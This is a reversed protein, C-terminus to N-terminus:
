VLFVKTILDVTKEDLKYSDAKLGLVYSPAFLSGKSRYCIKGFPPYEPDTENTFFEIHGNLLAKRIGKFEYYSTVIGNYKKIVHVIDSISEANELDKKIWAMKLNIRNRYYDVTKM